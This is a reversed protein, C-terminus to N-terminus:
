SWTVVTMLTLVTLIQEFVILIVTKYLKRATSSIQYTKWNIIIIKVTTV